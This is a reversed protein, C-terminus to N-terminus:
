PKAAFTVLADGTLRFVTWEDMPVAGAAKYFEISPTNWDLVSWEFRGCNEAVAIAAIAQLLSKGIGNGRLNEHVFLDELYIGRQGLFTSYNYFFLAFGAVENDWEAILCRPVPNAGFLSESVQQPTIVVEHALREYTGLALILDCISQADDPVAPRINLM